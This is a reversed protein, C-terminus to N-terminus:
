AVNTATIKRLRNTDLIAGGVYGFLGFSVKAVTPALDIRLPASAWFPAYAFDGVFSKSNTGAAGLSAAAVLDYGNVNISRYKSSVTGSANQPNISPFRKRGDSANENVLALYLDRHALVDLWNGSGDIFVAGALAAEAADGVTGSAPSLDIASSLEPLSAGNLLAAAKAELSEGYARNMQRWILGSVQPNGGQDVVERTIEMLGSVASPVVTQSETAFSGATPEVGETHDGVLGSASNFKPVNFPTADALSGARLASYVPANKEIYDVYLDPRYGAPNVASVDGTDVTAFTQAVFENIRQTAEGSGFRVANFLDTSFENEHHKGDFVYLSPETVSAMVPAAPIVAPASEVAAETIDPMTEDKTEHNATEATAKVSTTRADAFAPEPTLAVHSLLYGAPDGEATWQRFAGLSLGDWVGSAALALAKDGEATEAVKFRGLVGNDTEAVEQAVGFATNSDHNLNLKIRSADTWFLDGKNFTIDRGDIPKAGFPVILGEIMRAETDVKFEDPAFSFTEIEEAGFTVLDKETMSAEPNQTLAPTPAPALTKPLKEEERMEDHTVAGIRLGIEYAQYRSLTDVRLFDDTNFRASYGRPTVDGMSLRDEVARLFPGIVYKLFHMERDQANYYTRSTTSVGLEEGDIGTVRAIELVAHQRADAMQLQEPSFANQERKLWAPLFVTGNGAKKATQYAEIISRVYAGNDDPNDPDVPDVGDAASLLELPPVGSAFGAAAVELDLLARIARAGESLLGDRPSDFRILDRDEVWVAAAASNGDRTWYVQGNKNVSVSRPDLRRVFSPYGRSDREVVMWWAIGELLLDEFLRSMTVSRPIDKEPQEFLSYTVRLRDPAVYTLPLSGASGSVLNTAKSVAPVQMARRRDIKNAIPTSADYSSLGWFSAPIDVSAKVASDSPSGASLGGFLSSFFGGM